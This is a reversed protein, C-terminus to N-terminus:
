EVCTVSIQVVVGIHKKEANAKVATARSPFIEANTLDKAGFTRMYKRMLKGTNPDKIIYYTHPM